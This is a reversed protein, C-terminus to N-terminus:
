AAAEAESRRHRWLIIVAVLGVGGVALLIVLGLGLGVGAAASGGPIGGSRGTPDTPTLTPVGSAPGSPRVSGRYVSGTFTSVPEYEVTAGTHPASICQGQGAYMVVHGPSGGTDGPFDSFILDGPAWADRAVKPYGAAAQEQSTRPIAKGAVKYAYQCLGSCDFGNPTVGGWMYPVGIQARAVAVARAALATPSEDAQSAGRPQTSATLPM